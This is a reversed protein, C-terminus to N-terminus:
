ELKFAVAEADLAALVDRKGAFTKRATTLAEKAKATDGLVAYARILRQWGAPDNPSDKLRAALMAVMQKPDPAAGGPTLTQSTLLAIRDVLQQHLSSENPIDALLSQWLALAGQKDGRTALAQGLYLRAAVDKPNLTLAHQFARAAEDSIAGGNAAVLVMGYTSELNPDPKPSVAIARAFAKAANDADDLSIYARGLYIWAQTDGPTKRVREILLPILARVDRSKDGQAARLALNPQGVMWYVGGGVGLLFLAVSAALLLQAKQAGRWLTFTAFGIAALALLAFGLYPLVIV